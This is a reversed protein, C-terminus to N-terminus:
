IKTLYKLQTAYLIIFLVPIGFTFLLTTASYYSLGIFIMITLVPLVLEGILYIYFGLKKLGRMQAAGYACLGLSVLSLIMLSFHNEMTKRAIEVGHTGMFSKLFSPAKDMKEQMAQLDEDSQPGKILQVIISIGSLGCAIFTLITLVNLTTPLKKKDVEWDIADTTQQIDPM